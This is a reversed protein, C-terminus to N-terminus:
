CGNQKMLILVIKTIGVIRDEESEAGNLEIMIHQFVTAVLTLLNLSSSNVNPAKVSQSPLQQNHTLPRWDNMEGVTATCAQAVPPPHPQQQKQTNRRLAAAFYLGLTAHNSSFVRGSTTKPARQMEERAHSCGRYNSPHPEEGDM